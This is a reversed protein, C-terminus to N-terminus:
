KGPPSSKESTRDANTAAEMLKRNAIELYNQAIPNDIWELRLSRQFWPRAAAYDGLAVYHLGINAITFYGNPDLQEARDFYPTSEKQREVWDLCMGYRLSSYADYPNLTLSRGFWAMAQGALEGYNGGGEFSQVRFAEGLAYATEANMPEAEMARSLLKIQKDSFPRALLGPKLWVYEAGRRWGQLGLYFSTALLVATAAVKLWANLKVWYRETVFRLHSSLLAMLSVALIANAPIHMNFDVVSHFLLALLGFAGGLVVAFKNSKREGLEGKAGRVFRLTRVVGLYLLAWAAGVLATGALGWDALTNLFDDHVYLPRAQVLEHRYQPFRYDYHAPGIGWLPNEHWLQIAAVSLTFRTSQGTGGVETLERFRSKFYFMRPIFFLLSGSVLVFFVFAPLRSARDFALVGFFILLALGTAICTGRSITVVIGAGIVLTAYGVFVKTIPKFGSTVACALGLPLVMELFGGLHNPSIYTGTGQHKYPTVWHWVRDSGTLFQYIAYASIAMALFILTFSIVQVSKQRHLNNLIGFFLSAYVLIRILEQRAVYEIDATMYRIIAYATFAIVAWCIPPWLLQPRAILWFRTCWLVLLCITLGQIILFPLTDVAGMALPGFVLITLALGLIGRELWGDLVERKMQASSLNPM